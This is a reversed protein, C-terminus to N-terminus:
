LAFLEMTYGGNDNIDGEQYGIESTFLINQTLLLPIRECVPEQYRRKKLDMSYM